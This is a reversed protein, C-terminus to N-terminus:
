GCFRAVSMGALRGAFFECIDISEQAEMSIINFFM